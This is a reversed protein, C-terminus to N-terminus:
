SYMGSYIGYPIFSDPATNLFCLLPATCARNIRFRIDLSIRENTYPLPLTTVSQVSAGLAECASFFCGAPVFDPLVVVAQLIGDEPVSLNLGRRLLAYQMVSDGDQLSIECVQAIKLEYKAIMRSFTTLMGEDSNFIPLICYSCRGYYVEECGAQFSSLYQASLRGLKESFVSFARDTYASRLYATRTDGPADESLADEPLLRLLVSQETVGSLIRRCLLAYEKSCLPTDFVATFLEPLSDPISDQPCLRALEAVTGCLLADSDRLADTIERRNERLIRLADEKV